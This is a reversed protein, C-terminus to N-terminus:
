DSIRQKKPIKGYSRRENKLQNNYNENRNRIMSSLYSFGKGQLHYNKDMFLRVSYKIHAPEIKRIGYLFQYYRSVDKDSNVNDYISRMAKKLLSKTEKGYVSILNIVDKSYNSRIIFNYGCCPCKLNSM